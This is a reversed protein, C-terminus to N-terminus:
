SPRSRPPAARTPLRRQGARSVLLQALRQAAAELLDVAHAGDDVVQQQQRADVGVLLLQPERRDVQRREHAVRGFAHARMASRAPTATATVAGSPATLAAASAAWRSRARRLTTRLAMSCEAGPSATATDSVAAPAAAAMPTASWPRPCRAPRGRARRRGSRGPRRRASVRGRRCRGRDPWRGSSRRAGRPHHDRRCARRTPARRDGELQRQARVVASPATASFTGRVVVTPATASCSGRGVVLRARRRAPLAAPTGAGDRLRHDIELQSAGGSFRVEYRDSAAAFGPTELRNRGGFSGLSQRDFVLQSAGGTVEARLQAAPPDTCACTARAARSACRCSVPRRRCGSRSTAPAAASRSPACSSVAFTPRRAEVHRRKLSVDWPVAPNLRSRRSPSAGTSPCFAGSAPRDVGHRRQRHHRPRRGRVRRPVARHAHADVAISVKAAGKTFELRGAHRRALPATFEGTRRRTPTPRRCRRRPAEAAPAAISRVLEEYFERIGRLYDRIVTVGAPDIQELQQGGPWSSRATSARASSAPPRGDLHGARPPPRRPRRGPQRLRRAGHPRARHHDGRADPREGRRARRRHCARAPLPHRHLAPRHPQPRVAHGRSRRLPRRHPAARRARYRRRRDAEATDETM